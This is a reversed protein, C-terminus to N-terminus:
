SHPWSHPWMVKGPVAQLKHLKKTSIDVNLTSKQICCIQCFPLAFNVSWFVNKSFTVHDLEYFWQCVKNVLLIGVTHRFDMDHWSVQM